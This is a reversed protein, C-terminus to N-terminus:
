LVLFILAWIPNVFTAADTLAIESFECARSHYCICLKCTEVITRNSSLRLQECFLNLPQAMGGVGGNILRPPGGIEGSRAM